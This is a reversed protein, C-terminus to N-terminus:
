RALAVGLGIVRSPRAQDSIQGIQDARWQRAEAQDLLDEVEAQWIAIQKLWRANWEENENKDQMIRMM